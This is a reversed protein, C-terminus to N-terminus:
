IDGGVCVVSVEGTLDALADSTNYNWIEFSGVARSKWVSRDAVDSNGITIAYDARAADDAITVTYKGTDTRAISTINFASNEVAPTNTFSCKALIGGVWGKNTTGGLDRVTLRRSAAAPVTDYVIERGAATTDVTDIFAFRPSTWDDPQYIGGSRTPSISVRGAVHWPSPALDAPIGVGWYGTRMSTAISNGEIQTSTVSTITNTSQVGNTIKEGAVFEGQLMLVTLASAAASLPLGVAGSTVGYVLNASTFPGGGFDTNTIGNLVAHTKLAHSRIGASTDPTFGDIYNEYVTRYNVVDDDAINISARAPDLRAQGAGLEGDHNDLSKRVNVILGPHFTAEIRYENVIGDVNANAIFVRKENTAVISSDSTDDGGYYEIIARHPLSLASLDFKCNKPVTVTGGGSEGTPLADLATQVATTYTGGDTEGGYRRADGPEFAYNTPTAAIEADTRPWLVRGVSEATAFTAPWPDVDKLTAGAATKLVVRYSVSPDLYIPAFVGQSDATVPQSRASTLTANSYVAAATSTGTAYFYLKAGAYSNGGAVYASNPM